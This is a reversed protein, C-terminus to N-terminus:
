NKLGKKTNVTEDAITDTSFNWILADRIKLRFANDFKM